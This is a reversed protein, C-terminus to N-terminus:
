RITRLITASACDTGVRSEFCFHEFGLRSEPHIRLRLGDRLVIADRSCGRNRLDHEAKLALQRQSWSQEKPRVARWASVARRPVFRRFDSLPLLPLNTSAGSRRGSRARARPRPQDDGSGLRGLDTRLARTLVRDLPLESWDDLVILPLEPHQETLASRTVIPVTRLYLAQWTRYCDIGNGHPSLCFYSSALQEFFEVLPRKASPEIGTQEICYTRERVNTGVDFSAEFLQTKPPAQEQVRQLVAPDVKIPNAIGLPLSFLKPHHLAM